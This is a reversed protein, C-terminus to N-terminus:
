SGSATAAAQRRPAAAPDTPLRNTDIRPLLLPSDHTVQAVDGRITLGLCCGQRSLFRALERNADGFPYAIVWRDTRVGLSQLFDLSRRMEKEQEPKSLMTLRPHSWTHCGLFMGADKMAMLDKRSMYLERALTREDDAVLRRFLEDLVRAKPRPPLGWQLLRKVFASEPGDFRNPGALRQRYADWSPLDSIKREAEFCDRLDELLHDPGPVSALVLHIKNIDLLADQRTACGVPFFSGQWGRALLAPLVHEYRVAIGM